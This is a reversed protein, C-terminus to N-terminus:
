RLSHRERTSSTAQSIKQRIIDMDRADKSLIDTLFQLGERQKDLASCLKEVERAPPDDELVDQFSRDIQSQVILLEQIKLNPSQMAHMIKGIQERYRQENLSIPSGHCRLLEVKRLVTLFKHYLRAQDRELELVRDWDKRASREVVALASRVKNLEKKLQGSDVLQKDFRRKLNTTGIIKESELNSPDPNRKDVERRQIDHM